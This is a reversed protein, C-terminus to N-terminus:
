PGDVRATYFSCTDYSYTVNERLGSSIGETTGSAGTVSGETSDSTADM